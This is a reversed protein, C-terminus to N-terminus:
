VSGSGGIASGVSAVLAEVTYPKQVFGALPQGDFRATTEQETYGSSLIIRAEPKISVIRRYVEDGGMGPMTMDLLVVDIEDAKRQFLEIGAPGDAATLVTAGRCELLNRVVDRIDEEDDIVLVTAGPPLGSIPNASPQPAASPAAPFVLAFVTGRGPDSHVRIAGRHARMIGLIAALGLGRGAFKTTYFPDFIRALTEASMGCGTDTVELSVYEGPTLDQDPYEAAIRGADLRRRQTTLVIRGPEGAIAEAANILLNMIVQQIQGSDANISSLDDQLNIELTIARSVAARMFDTMEDVLENVSMSRVDYSARGSYALMQRTLESARRSANIIKQMHGRAESQEDGLREAALSANCVVGVLFNNFDHAVGGALMGLSELKQAQLVQTELRRREQEARKHASIDQGCAIVGLTRGEADSLRSLNWLVISEAGEPSCVTTEVHVSGAGEAGDGLREAAEVLSTDDFLEGYARGVVEERTRGYVREAERNWELIIKEGSLTVIVNPATRVLTRFREESEILAEEAHCRDTVDRAFGVLLKRGGDRLVIVSNELQIIHGAKHRHATPFQHLGTRAQTSAALGRPADEVELESIKMSRLEDASYGTMRCFAENVELFRYDEDVVFFGDMASRLIAANRTAPKDSNVRRAGRQEDRLTRHRRELRRSARVVFLLAALIVLNTLALVIVGWIM